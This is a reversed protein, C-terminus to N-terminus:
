LHDFAAADEENDWLDALVPDDEWTLCEAENSAELNITLVSSSNTTQWAIPPEPSVDGSGEKRTIRLTVVM